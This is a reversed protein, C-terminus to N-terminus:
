EKVIRYGLKVILKLAELSTNRDYEKESEPLESYPVLCPHLKKEDNRETGYTWGNNMRTQAWIEHTNESLKECLEMIDDPLVIDDTNIPHPTYKKM